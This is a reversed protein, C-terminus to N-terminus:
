STNYDRHAAAIRRKVERDLDNDSSMATMASRNFATIHVDDVFDLLMHSRMIIRMEHQVKWSLRM